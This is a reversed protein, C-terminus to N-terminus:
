RFLMMSTETFLHSNLHAKILRDQMRYATLHIFSQKMQTELIKCKVIPSLTVLVLFFM